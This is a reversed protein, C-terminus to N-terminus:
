FAGGYTKDYVASIFGFAMYAKNKQFKFSILWAFDKM